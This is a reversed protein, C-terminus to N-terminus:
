LENLRLSFSSSKKHKQTESPTHSNEFNTQMTVRPSSESKRHKPTIEEPGSLIRNEPSVRRSDRSEAAKSPSTKIVDSLSLFFLSSGARKISHPSSESELDEDTRKRDLKQNKMSSNKDFTSLKLKPSKPRAQEILSRSDLTGVDTKMEDDDQVVSSRSASFSTMAGIKVAELGLDDDQKSREFNQSEQNKIENDSRGDKDGDTYSVISEKRDYDRYLSFTRRVIDGSKEEVSDFKSWGQTDNEKAKVIAIKVTEYWADREGESSCELNLVKFQGKTELKIKRSSNKVVSCSWLKLIKPAETKKMTWVLADNFLFFMYMKKRSTFGSKYAMMGRRLIVRYPLLVDIQKGFFLQAKNMENKNSIGWKNSKIVNAIDKINKVAHGLFEFNIEHAKDAWKLLKNLLNKYDVIRDLPVLLLDVMDDKRRKSSKRINSLVKQLSDDLIYERMKNVTFTCDELYQIYMNLFNCHRVFMWGINSGKFLDNYFLKHFKYLTPICRFIQEVEMSTMNFENGGAILSLDEYYEKQLCELITCYFFEGKFFKRLLKKGEEQKETRLLEVTSEIPDVCGDNEQSRLKIKSTMEQEHITLAKAVQAESLGQTNVLYRQLDTVGTGQRHFSNLINVAKAVGDDPKESVV